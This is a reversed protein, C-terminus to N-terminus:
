LGVELKEAYEEAMEDNQRKLEENRELLAKGLEAALTLDNEKEALRELLKPRDLLLPVNAEAGDETVATGTEDDARGTAEAVAAILNALM